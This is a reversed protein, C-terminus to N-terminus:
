WSRYIRQPLLFDHLLLAEPLLLFLVVLLLNTAMVTGPRSSAVALVRLLM